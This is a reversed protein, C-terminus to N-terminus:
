LSAPVKSNDHTITNVCQSNEGQLQSTFNVNPMIVISSRGREDNRTKKIMNHETISTTM